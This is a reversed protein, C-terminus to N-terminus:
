EDPCTLQAEAATYTVKGNWDDSVVVFFQTLPNGELNQIESFRGNSSRVTGTYGEVLAFFSGTTMGTVEVTIKWKNTPSTNTGIITLNEIADLPSASGPPIHQAGTADITWNAPNQLKNWTGDDGASFDNNALVNAGFEPVCIDGGGLRILEVKTLGEGTYRDIKNIYFHSSLQWLYVPIFHDLSTIDEVTLHFLATLKKVHSLVDVLGSYYDEILSDDFGLNFDKEPLKFYCLPIDTTEDSTNTGDTYHFPDGSLVDQTDDIVIRQKVPLKFDGNEDIKRIIPAYMGGLHTKTASAAYPLGIITTEKQLTEDDINFFGNGYGVPIDSDNSDHAYELNNRQAYSGLRFELQWTKRDMHLKSSWNKSSAINEVISNMSAIRIEGTFTDRSFFLAFMHAFAKIVESQTMDPAMRNFDLFSVNYTLLLDYAPSASIGMGVGVSTDTINVPKIHVFFDGPRGDNRLGEFEGDGFTVSCNIVGVELFHEFDASATGTVTLSVTFTGNGGGGGSDPHTYDVVPTSFNANNILSIYLVSTADIWSAVTFTVDLNLTWADNINIGLIGVPHFQPNISQIGDAPDGIFWSSILTFDADNFYVGGKDMPLLIKLYNPDTFIAGTKEFGNESFIMDIISHLFLAPRQYRADINRSNTLDGYNILPYKYGTTNGNAAIINTLNWTHNYAALGALESLKKNAILEFLDVLGSYVTFNFDNAVSEVIAYGRPIVQGGSKKVMAPNKRYPLVTTSQIVNAWELAQIVDQTGPVRFQSSFNAQRDKLESLNNIQYTLAIRTGPPLPIEVGNIFLQDSAM